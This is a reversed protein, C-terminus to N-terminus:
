RTSSRRQDPLADDARPRADDPDRARHPVARPRVARPRGRPRPRRADRRRRAAPRRRLVRARVAIKSGITLANVSRASWSTSSRCRSSTSCTTPGTTCAGLAAAAAGARAPRLRRAARVAAPARRARDAQPGGSGHLPDVGARGDCRPRRSARLGQALHGPTPLAEAPTTTMRRTSCHAPSDGGRRPYVARMDALGVYSCLRWTASALRSVDPFARREAALQEEAVEAEVQDVRLGRGVRLALGAAGLEECAARM